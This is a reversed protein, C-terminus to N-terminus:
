AGPKAEFLNHPAEGAAYRRLNEVFLDFLREDYAEPAAACHPSLYLNPAEWLPDDPPLPEQRTVDLVAAGLQGSELALRLAAEDVLGGRAVNCLVAGAPLAALADADILDRTEQTEPACLVLADSRALLKPLDAPAFLEDAAEGGREPHRRTALVRMGLARARLALASGIAGLGVIGLTRGALLRSAPRTFRRSRQMAEMRRTDKWVELLRALVFEAIPVAGVGAATALAIGRAALQEPQLHEVGSSYAQVFRLQPLADLQESPLDLVLLVECDRWLALVESGPPTVPPLAAGKARASRVKQSEKFPLVRLEVPREADRLAAALADADAGPPHHVGVVLRGAPRTM